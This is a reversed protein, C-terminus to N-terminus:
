MDAPYDLEAVVKRCPFSLDKCHMVENLTCYQTWALCQAVGRGHLLDAGRQLVHSLSVGLLMERQRARLGANIEIQKGEQGFARWLRECGLIQCRLQTSVWAKHTRSVAM